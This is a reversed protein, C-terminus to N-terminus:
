AADAQAPYPLGSATLGRLLAATSFVDELAGHADVQRYGFLECGAKLSLTGKGKTDMGISKKYARLWKQTCRWEGIRKDVEPLNYAVFRRDFPANHAWAIIPKPLTEFLQGLVDRAASLSVAGREFWGNETYGNIDAATQEMLKGPEPWMAIVDSLGINFEPGVLGWGFEVFAHKEPQFGGSETDLIIQSETM